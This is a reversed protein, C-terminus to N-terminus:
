YGILLLMIAENQTIECVVGRREGELLLATMAKM